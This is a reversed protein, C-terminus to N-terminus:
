GVGDIGKWEEEGGPATESGRPSWISDQFPAIRVPLPARMEGLGRLGM